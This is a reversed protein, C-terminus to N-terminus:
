ALDKEPRWKMDRLAYVDEIVFPPVMDLKFRPLCSNLHFTLFNLSSNFPPPPYLVGGSLQRVGCYCGLNNSLQKTHM